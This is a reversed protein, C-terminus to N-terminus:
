LYAIVNKAMASKAKSAVELERDLEALRADLAALTEQAALHPGALRERERKVRKAVASEHRRAKALERMVLTQVKTALPTIPAHRPYVTYVYDNNVALIFTIRQYGFLRTPMGSDSIINDVFFSKRLNSRIWEQASARPVNFDAVAEDIAHASVIISTGMPQFRPLIPTAIPAPTVNPATTTTM